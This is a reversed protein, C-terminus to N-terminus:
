CRSAALTTEIDRLVVRPDDLRLLPVAKVRLVNGVFQRLKRARLDEDRRSITICSTYIPLKKKWKNKIYRYCADFEAPLKLLQNTNHVCFAQIAYSGLGQESATMCLDPGYLHFHPLAPDFRLGSSKRVILVIEDLTEVRRPEDIPRGHSGLGTTYINGLGGHDSRTSGFCGLVGWKMRSRELYALSAHLDAFWKEPLYIDHHVFIVIDNVAEDIARNYALSASPFDNKIILQHGDRLLGPSLLINKQLISLNNTAIAVTFKATESM